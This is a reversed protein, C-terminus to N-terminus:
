QRSEIPLWHLVVGDAAHSTPCAGPEFYLIYNAMGYHIAHEHLPTHYVMTLQYTDETNITFGASDRYIQHEAFSLMQGQSSVRPTTRLLTQGRTKNDLVIAVLYDHGHPYAFKVCGERSFSFSRSRFFVGDTLAIGEDTEDVARQNLQTYCGVNVGIHYADLPSLNMGRQRLQLTLTAIVGKTPPVDHYFAAVAMLHTGRKLRVGYGPPFQANAMELGTGAVIHPEGPCSLSEKDTNILLLHHLYSHPLPTGDETSITSTFGGVVIDEPLVFYHKPMSAAFDGAHPAPLDIPGFTITLDTSKISVHTKTEREQPMGAAIMMAPSIDEGSPNHASAVCNFPVLLSVLLLIAFLRV